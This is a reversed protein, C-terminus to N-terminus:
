SSDDARKAEEAFTLKPVTILVACPSVLINCVLDSQTSLLLRAKSVM